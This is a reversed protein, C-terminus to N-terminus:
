SITDSIRDMPLPPLVTREDYLFIQAAAIVAERVYNVIIDLIDPGVDNEPRLNLLSPFVALRDLRTLQESRRMSSLFYREHMLSRGKKEGVASVVTYCCYKALPLFSWFGRFYPLRCLYGLDNLQRRSLIVDYAETLSLYSDNKIAELIQLEYSHLSAEQRNLFIVGQETLSLKGNSASLLGRVYLFCLIAVLGNVPSFEERHTMGLLYLEDVPRLVNVKEM